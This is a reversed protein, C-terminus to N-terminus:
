MDKKIRSNPKKPKMIMVKIVIGKKQPGRIKKSKNERKEKRERKRIRQNRTVM